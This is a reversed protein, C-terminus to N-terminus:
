SKGKKVCAYCTVCESGDDGLRNVAVRYKGPALGNFLPSEQFEGGNIAYQLPAKSKAKVCLTGDYLDPCTAPTTLVSCIKIKKAKKVVVRKSLSICDNADMVTVCYCGAELNMFPDGVPIFGVETGISYTYPATGGVVQEEELLITGNDACKCTVPTIRPCRFKIPEDLSVFPTTVTFTIGKYFANFISCITTGSGLGGVNCTSTDTCQNGGNVSFDSTTLYTLDIVGDTSNECSPHTTYAFTYPDSLFALDLIVEMTGAIITGESDKVSFPIPIPVNTNFFIKNFTVGTANTPGQPIETGLEYTYNPAGGLINLTIAAQNSFLMPQVVISDFRLPGSASMTLTFLTTLLLLLKKM